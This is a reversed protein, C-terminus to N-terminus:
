MKRIFFFYYILSNSSCYLKCVAFSFHVMPIGNKHELISHMMCPTKILMGKRLITQILSLMILNKIAIFSSVLMRSFVSVLMIHMYQDQWLLVLFGWTCRNVHPLLELMHFRIWAASSLENESLIIRTLLFNYM